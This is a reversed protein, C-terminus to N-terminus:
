APPAPIHDPPRVMKMKLAGPECGVVCVGCGFCKEADLVAKLKKSKSGEVKGMEIADFPCRDVCTQCGNCDDRITYAVYRSKEWAKGVPHGAMNMPVPIMCCDDCCNCSTNYGTMASNNFVMHLLGDEEILDSLELAEELSLARGSGSAVAYEAGRGFQLCVHHAKEDHIRCSHGVSTEMYRCACPVSSIREQSRLIERYNECPLVGDLDEISKYAPVVRQFPTEDSNFREALVPYHENISFDHWLKYFNRDKEPDRQARAMASEFFQGMNRAFRFYERKSFDGKPFVVGMFFLEDLTDKVRDQDFGTKESVERPTGPLAAAMLAQDPTIMDEMILRLRASGQYGLREVLLDYAADPDMMREELANRTESSAEGYRKKMLFGPGV